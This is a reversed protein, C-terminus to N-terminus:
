LRIVDSSPPMYHAWALLNPTCMAASKVDETEMKIDKSDSLGIIIAAAEDKPPPDQLSVPNSAPASVPTATKSKKKKKISQTNKKPAASKDEDDTEDDLDLIRKQSPHDVEGILGAKASSTLKSSSSSSPKAPAPTDKSPKTQAAFSTSGKPGEIGTTQIQTAKGSKQGSGSTIGGATGKGKGRSRECEQAWGADDTAIKSFSFNITVVPASAEEFITVLDELTMAHLARDPAYAGPPHKYDRVSPNFPIAAPVTYLATLAKKLRLDPEADIQAKVDVWRNKMAEVAARWEEQGQTSM